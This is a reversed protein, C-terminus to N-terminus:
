NGGNGQYKLRLIEDNLKELRKAQQERHVEYSDHARKLVSDVYTKRVMEEKITDKKGDPGYYVYYGQFKRHVDDGGAIALTGFSIALVLLKIANKKM